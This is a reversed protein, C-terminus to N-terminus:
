KVPKAKFSLIDDLYSVVKNDKFESGLFVKGSFEIFNSGSLINGLNEFSVYVKDKEARYVYGIAEAHKSLMRASSGPMDVETFSITGDNAYKDKIHGIWITTKGTNNFMYILKEFAQRLYDYGAGMPLNLIDKYEAKNKTFWAKGMLTRSYIVEAIYKALPIISSLNDVVIYKFQNNQKLENLIDSIDKILLTYDTNDSKIYPYLNIVYAELNNTNDEFSFIISNDIACLTSKGSKPLGYLICNKIKKEPKQKQKPLQLGLTQKNEEM